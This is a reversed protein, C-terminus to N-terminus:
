HSVSYRPLAIKGAIGPLAQPNGELSAKFRAAERDGSGACGVNPTSNLPKSESIVESGVGVGQKM